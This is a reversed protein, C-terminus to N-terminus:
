EGLYTRLHILILKWLFLLKPKKMKIKKLFFHLVQLM